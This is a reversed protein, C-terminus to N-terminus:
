LTLGVSAGLATRVSNREGTTMVQRLVVEGVQGNLYFGSYYQSVAFKTWASLDMNRVELVVWSGSPIATSLDGATVATGGPVDVGNVAITGASGMANFASSTAGAYAILYRGGGTTESFFVLDAGTNRKVVMFMDMNSTLTGAAFSATANGDDAGDHLLYTAGGSVTYTPRAASTAQLLHNGRGSKDGEYGVPQGTATVATTAASDQFLTTIDAPKWWAGLQGSAYLTAIDFAGSGGYASCVAQQLASM